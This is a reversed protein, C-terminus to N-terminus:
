GISLLKNDMRHQLLLAVLENPSEVNLKDLISRRHTEVTRVGIKLHAAISISTQGDAVLQAVECERITLRGYRSRVVDFRQRSEYVSADWALARLIKGHIEDASSPKIIYSFAEMEWAQLVDMADTPNGIVVAPNRRTHGALRHLVDIPQADPLQDGLLICGPDEGLYDAFFEDATAFARPRVGVSESMQVVVQRLQIDQDLLYVIPRRM